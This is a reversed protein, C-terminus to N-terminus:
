RHGRLAQYDPIVYDQIFDGTMQPTPRGEILEPEDTEGRLEAFLRKKFAPNERLKAEAEKAGEAKWHKRLADLSHQVLAKRGDIGVGVGELKLIREQEARPLATVLPDIVATDWQKGINQLFGILQQEQEERAKLEAREESGQFPDYDPSNPDLKREIAERKAREEAELQEKKRKAERRDTEAQVLRSIEEETYSRAQSTAAPKSAERAETETDAEDQEAVAKPFLQGFIREKLSPQPKASVEASPAEAPAADAPTTEASPNPVTETEPM